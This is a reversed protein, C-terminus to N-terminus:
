APRLVFLGLNGGAVIKAAEVQLQAERALRPVGGTKMFSRYGSFHEWGGGVEIVTILGRQLWGRPFTLRGPHYDIIMVRGDAALLRRAEALAATRISRPMEHICMMFLVLDFSGPLFPLRLADAVAVRGRAGQKQAAVALMAPSLDVGVVACGEQRYRALLTGTGCGVDLARQGPRPPHLRIGIERLAALLPEIVRDYLSASHRYPDTAAVFRM